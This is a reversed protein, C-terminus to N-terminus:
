RVDSRTQTEGPNDTTGTDQLYQREEVILRWVKPNMMVRLCLDTGWFGTTAYKRPRTPSVVTNGSANDGGWPHDDGSGGITDDPDTYPTERGSGLDASALVLVSMLTLVMLLKRM